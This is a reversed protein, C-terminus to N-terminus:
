VCTTLSNIIEYYIEQKRRTVNTKRSSRRHVPMAEFERRDSSDRAMSRDSRFYHFYLASRMPETEKRNKGTIM